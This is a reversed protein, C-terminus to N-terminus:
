RPEVHESDSPGAATAMMAIGHDYSVAAELHESDSWLSLHYHPYLSGHIIKTNSDTM